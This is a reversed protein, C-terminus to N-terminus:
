KVISMRGPTKKHVPQRHLKQPVVFEWNGQDEKEMVGKLTTHADYVV